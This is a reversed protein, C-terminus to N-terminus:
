KPGIRIFLLVKVLDRAKLVTASPMGADTKLGAAGCNEMVM